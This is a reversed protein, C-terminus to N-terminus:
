RWYQVKTHYDQFCTAGKKMCLYVFCNTCQWSTKSRKVPCDSYAVEPNARTFRKFKELCVVCTHDKGQGCEPFHQAAEPIIRPVPDCGPRHGRSCQRQTFNGILQHVLDCLFSRFDRKRKNPAEHPDFCDELIYANYAAWLLSKRFLRMYWRYTKRSKSLGTMKDNLDVGGMKQNYDVVSTPADIELANGRNDHRIVVEMFDAPHITSLLYIPKNDMWVHAVIGTSHDQRWRTDGRQLDRNHAPVIERPFGRNVMTTGCGYLWHQLMYYLLARGTYFRDFYIHMGSGFYPRCLNLVVQQSLLTPGADNMDGNRNRGMYVEFNHLYDTKSTALLWVKIGWKTPKEKRYQKFGLRGKFPVMGEDIVNDREPVYCEQFRRCLHNLVTRIKYLKDFRLNDCHGRAQGEECFHVYRLLAIFRKCVFVKTVGPFNLLFKNVNATWLEEIRGAWYM